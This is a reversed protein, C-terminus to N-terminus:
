NQTIPLTRFTLDYMASHYLKNQIYHRTRYFPIDGSSVLAQNVTLDIIAKVRACILLLSGEQMYYLAHLDTIDFNDFEHKFGCLHLYCNYKEKKAKKSIPFSGIPPCNDTFKDIVSQANRIEVGLHNLFNSDTLKDFCDM